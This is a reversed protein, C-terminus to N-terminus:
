ALMCLGKRFGSSALLVQNSGMLEVGIDVGPCCQNGPGSGADSARDRDTEGLVAKGNEDVAPVGRAACADNLHDLLPTSRRAEHGGVQPVGIGDGCQGLLDPRDFNQDVVASEACPARSGASAGPGDIGQERDVHARWEEEDPCERGHHGLAPVAADDIDGAHGRRQSQRASRRARRSHGRDVPQGAGPGGLVAACPDPDVGDGGARHVGVRSIFLEDGTEASGVQHVTGGLGLLDGLDDGEQSRLPRTVDSAGDQRGVTSACSDSASLSGQSPGAGDADLEMRAPVASVSRLGFSSIWAPSGALSWRSNRDTLVRIAEEMEVRALAAGICYHAGVGFGLHPNPTRGVDFRDPDPFVDPDRNAAAIMFHLRAGPPLHTGDITTGNTAVLPVHTFPTEFRLCEEIAPGILAADDQLRLLEAPTSLLAAMANGISASVPDCGGTLFQAFTAIMAAEGLEEVALIPNDTQGRFKLEKAAHRVYDATAHYSELAIRGLAIDPYPSSIFAILDHSRSSFEEWTEAPIDLLDCIVSVALPRAFESYLDVPHEAAARQLQIAKDRVRARRREVARPTLTRQVCTRVRGHYPSDSFVMWGEYFSRLDYLPELDADSLLNMFATPGRSSLDRSYLGAKVDEYRTIIWACVGEDWHVPDHTRLTALTHHWDALQEPNDFRLVRASEESM